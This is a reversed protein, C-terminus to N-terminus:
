LLMATDRHESYERLKKLGLRLRGKVTGLPVKLLVSIEAHTYGRFYALEVIKSQEPPLTKLAEHLQEHRCERWSQTFAECPQSKHAATADLKEQTRRRSGKARLQDIGGNRIISFIWTRVTGLKPKYSRAMRWVKLFSEQLLDEAAQPEGMMQYALSYATRSHRDYLTAFAEPDGSEALSILDEDVLLVLLRQPRPQQPWAGEQPSAKTLVSLVSERRCGPQRRRPSDEQFLDM